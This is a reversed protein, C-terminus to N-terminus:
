PSQNPLRAISEIARRVTELELHTYRKNMDQSAHGTLKQRIELSVDANAMASNFSHRLSHFSLKSVNRGLKGGKERAVGDDIGARAMLRKFSMSLGSKGAGPKNFLKQFVPKHPHDPKPLEMFYEYLDQHVPIQVSAGTKKQVFSITKSLLDINDWTLKALDALRGGTFYGVLILGKWDGEALEILRQIQEPTFVGKKTSSTRIPRVAAVPNRDILGEEVAIKFPRKLIKITQNVTRPSRGEALWQEKFELITDTSLTDLPALAQTGINSLFDRVIQKYRMMTRAAVADKESRIWRELWESVTPCGTRKGTVREVTELVIKRIRAQDLSGAAARDATQQWADLIEKAESRKRKKTSKRVWRRQGDLSVVLFVGYWYPSRSQADRILYAMSHNAGSFHHFTVCLIV